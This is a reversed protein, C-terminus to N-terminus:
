IIGTAMAGMIRVMMKSERTPSSAVIVSASSVPSILPPFKSYTTPVVTAQLRPSKEARSMLFRDCNKKVVGPMTKRDYVTKIKAILMDENALQRESPLSRNKTIKLPMKKSKVEVRKRSKSRLKLTVVSKLRRSSLSVLKGRSLFRM